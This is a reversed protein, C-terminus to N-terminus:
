GPVQSRDTTLDDTVAEAFYEQEPDNGINVFPLVVISLRPAVLEAQSVPSVESCSEVAEGIFRFGKRPVTRILWQREGDDGVARRAANIRTFFTSESVLRGGWVAELLDDKSVVRDRNQVLFALLDFVQPELAVLSGGRLLERRAVDLM